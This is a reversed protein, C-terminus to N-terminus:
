QIYILAEKNKIQNLNIPYALQVVSIKQIKSKLIQEDLYETSGAVLLLADFNKLEPILCNSDDKNAILYYKAHNEEDDFIFQEFCCTVDNIPV